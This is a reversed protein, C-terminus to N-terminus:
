NNSQLFEIIMKSVLLPQEIHASHAAQEIERYKSGTILHKLNKVCATPFIIDTECGIILSPCKIEQLYTSSDFDKIIKMQEILSQNQIPYPDMEAGSILNSINSQEIFFSESFNWIAMVHIFTKLPAETKALVATKCCHKAFATLKNSTAFLILKKIYSPYLYTFHQAVMGGMSHGLIFASNISLHDLLSKMDSALLDFSYNQSGMESRGSGRPDPLIISFHGKLIDVISLYYRGDAGGGPIILLPQGQGHIEYYLKTNCNQFFSM